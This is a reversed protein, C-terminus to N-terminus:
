TCGDNSRKERYEIFLAVSLALVAFPLLLARAVMVLALLVVLVLAAQGIVALNAPGIVDHWLRRAFVSIARWCVVVCLVM